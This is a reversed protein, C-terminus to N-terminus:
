ATKKPRTAKKKVIPEPEPEPEPEEEEEDEDDDDEANGNAQTETEEDSDQIQVTTTQSEEQDDFDVFGFDNLSATEDARLRMLTFTAGCRTQQIYFNTLRLIGEGTTGRLSLKDIPKEHKERDM